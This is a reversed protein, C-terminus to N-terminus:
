SLNIVIVRLYIFTSLAGVYCIKPAVIIFSFFLLEYKECSCCYVVIKRSSLLLKRILYAISIDLSVPDLPRQGLRLPRSHVVTELRSEVKLVCGDHSRTKQQIIM